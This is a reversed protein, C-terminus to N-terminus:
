VTTIQPLITQNYYPLILADLIDETLDPYNVEVTKKSNVWKSIKPIQKKNLKKLVPVGIAKQNKKLALNIGALTAGTGCDTLIYNFEEEIEAVIDKCGLVGEINGGGEPIIYVNGFQSSIKDLFEPKHKERYETRSIYHIEM